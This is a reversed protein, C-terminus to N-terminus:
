AVAQWLARHLDATRRWTRGAVLAHGAATLGARREEDAAATVLAGAIGDLDRADVRLAAMDQPEGPRPVVSPVNSGVVVPVGCTMAELPPLGYGESLPVYVFARARHYLGALTANPVGGARVVGDPPHATPGAGWGRPGVVVLPWPEPLQRRARDYAEFLRPLNKRPEITGVTLLFEGHVGLERLLQGAAEDDPPPLHDAGGPAVTVSDAPAGAAMLEGAVADSPVVFGSADRLARLLSAEHWQRGRRTSVEPFARWTLDHVTVTTRAQSTSPPFAFSVSHVIDFGSPVRARGRDWARTLLPGPLPSTLVPRGFALLPDGATSREGAGGSQSRPPRSAYLTVDVDESSALGRVVGRAYTGIGGPVTRRLQQVVLLVRCRSAGNM